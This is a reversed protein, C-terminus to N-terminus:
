RNVNVTISVTHIAGALKVAVQFPVSKRAERDSQAQSSVPPAFIYYGFPLFDGQQLQGFGQANWQGPALTGNNVGAVCAAAIANRLINNGADTQPVKTTSTYLVNYCNTQIQNVLWDLDWTNDIFDGNAVKGNVVIATGNDFNVFYNYNNNDLANAESPTLDEPVVGPEQKWMFTIVTLNGNFDVVCGRGILSAVAYPDTSSYQSFSRRYGLQKLLFNISSNDVTTLAAAEATTIGFVHARPSGSEGAEIYAAIEVIETNDTGAVLEPTAFTLAYWFLSLSDLAVVAELATEADVGEVILQLTAATGKLQASIDTGVAAETLAGVVSVTGTSDSTFVFQDREGDWVCSAGAGDIALSIVNAVGNLNTQASFDLGTIDVAVANDVQIAFSGDTIATWSAMLQEAATLPGCLLLGHTAVNAWRGIYLTTPQPVQSFFNRAALYEPASTGFDTAVETLSNYERYREEVNIVDSTGVVMCTDFNQFQASLPSLVLDVNILRSVSLGQAM